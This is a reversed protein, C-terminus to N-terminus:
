VFCYPINDHNLIKEFLYIFFFLYIFLFSVYLLIVVIVLTYQTVNGEVILHKYGDYPEIIKMIEFLADYLFSWM